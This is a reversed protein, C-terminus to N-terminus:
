EQSLKWLAQEHKGEVINRWIPHFPDTFKRSVGVNMQDRFLKVEWRNSEPICGEWDDCRGQMCRRFSHCEGLILYFPSFKWVMDFPCKHAKSFWRDHFRFEINETKRISRSDDLTPFPPLSAARRRNKITSRRSKIAAFGHDDKVGEIWEKRADSMNGALTGSIPKEERMLMPMPRTVIHDAAQWLYHNNGDLYASPRWPVRDIDSTPREWAGPPPGFEWMQIQLSGDVEILLDSGNSVSLRYTRINCIGDIRLEHMDDGFQAVLNNEREAFLDLNSVSGLVYGWHRVLAALESKNKHWPKDCFWRLMCSFPTGRTCDLAHLDAGMSILERAQKAYSGWRHPEMAVREIAFDLAFHEAAWHLATRGRPDKHMALDTLVQPRAMEVFIEPTWFKSGVAASFRQAFSWTEFPVAQSAIVEQLLPKTWASSLIDVYSERRGRPSRAETLDHLDIQLGYKGIFLKFIVEAAHDYRQGLVPPSCFYLFETLSRLM